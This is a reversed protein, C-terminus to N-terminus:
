EYQLSLRRIGRSDRREDLRVGRDFTTSHQFGHADVDVPAFGGDARHYVRFEAPHKRADILWFEDVGARYYAVPLRQTDKKVSSDSVIEVILDAAGEIEVYRGPEGTAKPVLRARGSDITEHSLYVVDPEASLDAEPSSIRTSDTFLYGLEKDEVLQNLAAVVQVKLNGHSFLEEPSMDVEIRGGIFDIRGTEPFDESLAWSRFDALTQLNMPIEIKEEILLSTVM